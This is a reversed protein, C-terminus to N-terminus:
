RQARPENWSALKNKPNEQKKADICTVRAPHSRCSSAKTGPKIQFHIESPPSSALPPSPLDYRPPRTNRIKVTYDGFRFCNKDTTLLAATILERTQVARYERNKAPLPPPHNTTEITGLAYDNNQWKKGRDFHPKKYEYKIRTWFYIRPAPNCFQQRPLM